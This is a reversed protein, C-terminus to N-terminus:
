SEVRWEGSEVRLEGNEIRIGRSKSLCFHMFYRLCNKIIRVIDRNDDIIKKVGPEIKSEDYNDLYNIAFANDGSLTYNLGNTYALYGVKLGNVSVINYEHPFIGM